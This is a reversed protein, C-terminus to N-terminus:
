DKGNIPVNLNPSVNIQTEGASNGSVSVSTTVGEARNDVKVVTRSTGCSSVLLCSFLLALGLLVCKSM